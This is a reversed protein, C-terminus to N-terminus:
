EAVVKASSLVSCHQPTHRDLEVEVPDADHESAEIIERLAMARHCQVRGRRVDIEPGRHPAFSNRTAVIRARAIKRGV